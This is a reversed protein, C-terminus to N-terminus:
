VVIHAVNCYNNVGTHRVFSTCLDMFNKVFIHTVMINFFYSKVSAMCLLGM